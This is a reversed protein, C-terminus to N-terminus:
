FSPIFQQKKDSIKEKALVTDSVCYNNLLCKSFSFTLLLPPNLLHGLPM